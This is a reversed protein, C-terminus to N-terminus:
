KPSGNLVGYSPQAFAPDSDNFAGHSSGVLDYDLHATGDLSEAIMFDYDAATTM